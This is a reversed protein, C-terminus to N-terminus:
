LSVTYFGPIIFTVHTVHVSFVRLFLVVINIPYTRQLTVRVGVNTQTGCHKAHGSSVWELTTTTKSGTSRLFNHLYSRTSLSIQQSPTKSQHVHCTQYFSDESNKGQARWTFPIREVISRENSLLDTPIPCTNWNNELTLISPRYYSRSSLTRMGKRRIGCYWWVLKYPISTLSQDFSM